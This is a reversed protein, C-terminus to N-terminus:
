RSIEVRNPNLVPSKRREYQLIPDGVKFDSLAEIVVGGRRQALKLPIEPSTFIRVTYFAGGERELWKGIELLKKRQDPRIESSDEDFFITKTTNIKPSASVTEGTSTIRTTGKEDYVMGTYPLFPIKRTRTQAMLSFSVFFCFFLLVFIKKM